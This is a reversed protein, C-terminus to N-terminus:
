RPRLAWTMVHVEPEPDADVIDTLRTPAPATPTDPDWPVANVSSGRPVRTALRQVVDLGAADAVAALRAATFFHLHTRDLIGTDRYNWQGAALALRVDVHGVNPVSVVVLPDGEGSRDLCRVAASLAAVPDAVHEIVNGFLVADSSGALSRSWDDVDLDGVVVREAWFRSRSPVERDVVTVRHGLDHLWHTMDAAPAVEVVRPHGALLAIERAHCTGDGREFLVSYDVAEGFVTPPAITGRGVRECRMTFSRVVDVRDGLVADAQEPDGAPAETTEVARVRLGCEAAMATASDVTFYRRVATPPAVGGEPADVPLAGALLALVGDVHAVNPLSIDITAGVPLTEVLGHLALDPRALRHLVGDVTLATFPGFRSVAAGWAREDAPLRHCRGDHVLVVGAETTRVTPM